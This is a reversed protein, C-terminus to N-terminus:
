DITQCFTLNLSVRLFVPTGENIPRAVLALEKVWFLVIAQNSDFKSRKNSSTNGIIIHTLSKNSGCLPRFILLAM